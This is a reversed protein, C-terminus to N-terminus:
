KSATPPLISLCLPGGDGNGIVPPDAWVPDAALPDEAGHRGITLGVVRARGVVMRRPRRGWGHGQWGSCHSLLPSTPSLSLPSILPSLSPLSILM